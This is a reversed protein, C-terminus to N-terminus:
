EKRKKVAPKKAKTHKEDGAQRGEVPKANAVIAVPVPPLPVLPPPPLPVPPPPPNAMHRRLAQIVVERFTEGRDKAFAETESALESPFEIYKPVINKSPRIPMNQGRLEMM